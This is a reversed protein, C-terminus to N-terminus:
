RNQQDVAPNIRWIKGSFTRGPYAEVSLTALQGIRIWGAMKEPIKLRVRLTDVNLIIVVPAQVKLYQGLTVSREKVQGAFPARIECDNLKKEALALSARSCGRPLFIRQACFSRSPM